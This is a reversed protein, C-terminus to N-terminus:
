IDVVKWGLSDENLSLYGSPYEHSPVLPVINGALALSLYCHSLFLLLKDDILQTLADDVASQQWQENAALLKDLLRQKTVPEACLRYIAADLGTLEHVMSTAVERTDLIRILDSHDVMCLLPPTPENWFQRSWQNIVQQLQQHGPLDPLASIDLGREIDPKTEDDIFFYAVNFLNQDDLPYIFRYSDVPKLTLQYEDAKDFYPSFRHYGIRGMEQQPPQLHTILPVWQAMEVYWSECEGPAGFLINWSLRVGKERCFKLTAVNQLGTTGKKILKLFDDQLSELGPQIWKVGAAALKEVHERRLNAKTEYFVAYQGQEAWSPLVTDVYEMPLINDAVGFKYIDYKASLQGFESIVAEASKARHTMGNGNLGCFTCHRKAGWWCGRSTEVMLGPSIEKTLGLAKISAFYSDYNPMGVAKMDDVVARPVAATEDSNTKILPTEILTKCGAIVGVPLQHHQYQFGQMLKDIFEGIVEDCEGSFVYDVWDFVQSITQGMVGECNAGGMLTIIDPRATKIKRLLALSACNQQFTSSCGVIKPNKALIEAALEDIFQEAQERLGLLRQCAEPSLGLTALYAKDRDASIFAESDVAKFTSQHDLFASRSFTWEGVLDENFASEISYYRECGVKAAFKLTGYIVEVQHGFPSIYNHLLGLPLSPRELSAYPMTVLCIM